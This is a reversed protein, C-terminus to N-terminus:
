PNVESRPRISRSCSATLESSWQWCNMARMRYNGDTWVKWTLTM